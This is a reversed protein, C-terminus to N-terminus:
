YAFVVQLDLLNDNHLEFNYKKLYNNNTGDVDFNLTDSVLLCNANIKVFLLCIFEDNYSVTTDVDIVVDNIVLDIVVDYNKNYTASFNVNNGNFTGDYNAFNIYKVGASCNNQLHWHMFDYAIKLINVANDLTLNQM